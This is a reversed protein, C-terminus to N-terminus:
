GYYYNLDHAYEYDKWETETFIDCFRTDGDIEAQFGCLDQMVGIDSSNLTLGELYQNLRDAVAPQYAARFDQAKFSSDGGGYAPCGTSPTLSDAFTCNVSDPM